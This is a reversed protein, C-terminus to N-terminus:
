WLAVELVLAACADGGLVVVDDGDGFAASVLEVVSSAGAVVAVADLGTTFCCACSVVGLCGM